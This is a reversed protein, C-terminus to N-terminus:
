KTPAPYFISTKESIDLRAALKDTCEIYGLNKERCGTLIDKLTKSMSHKHLQRDYYAVKEL